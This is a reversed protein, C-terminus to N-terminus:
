LIFRIVLVYGLIFSAIAVVALAGALAWASKNGV